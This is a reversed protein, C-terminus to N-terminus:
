SGSAFGGDLAEELSLCGAGIFPVLRQTSAAVQLSEPIKPLPDIHISMLNIPLKNQQDIFDIAIVKSLSGHRSYQESNLSKDFKVNFIPV